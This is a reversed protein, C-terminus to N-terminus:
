REQPLHGYWKPKKTLGFGHPIGRDPNAVWEDSERNAFTVGLKDALSKKAEIQNWKRLVKGDAVNIEFASFV